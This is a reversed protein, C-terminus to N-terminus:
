GLGGGEGPPSPPWVWGWFRASAVRLELAWFEVERGVCWFCECAWLAGADGFFAMERSLKLAEAELDEPVLKM